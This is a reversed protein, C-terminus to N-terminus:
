GPFRLLPCPPLPALTTVLRSYVDSAMVGGETLGTELLVEGILDGTRDFFVTHEGTLIADQHGYGPALITQRQPIDQKIQSVFGRPQVDMLPNEFVGGTRELFGRREGLID